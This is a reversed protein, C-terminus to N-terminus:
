LPETLAELAERAWQRSPEDSNPDDLIERWHQRREHERRAEAEKAQRAERRYGTHIASRSGASKPGGEALSTNKSLDM